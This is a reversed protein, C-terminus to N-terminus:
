VCEERGELDSQVDKSPVHKRQMQGTELMRRELKILHQQSDKM